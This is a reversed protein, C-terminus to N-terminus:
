PSIWRVFYYLVTGAVLLSDLRDLLGGHGPVLRGADKISLSRKMASEALDGLQAVASTGLGALVMLWIPEPPGLLRNLLVAAVAASGLGGLAGEITKSPSIRPALPHRGILRGLAYAGSDSAFTTFIVLFVWDRGDPLHRLLALHMGLWGVYAGIGAALLWSHLGPELVRRAVLWAGSLLLYAALLGVPWGLGGRVAIPLSGALLAPLWALPDRPLTGASLLFEATAALLVAGLVTDYWVGGAIVVVILLPIGVAASILRQGLM